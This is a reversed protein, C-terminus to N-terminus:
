NEDNNDFIKEYKHDTKFGDIKAEKGGFICSHEKTFFFFHGECIMLSSNESLCKLLQKELATMKSHADNFELTKDTDIEWQGKLDILIVYKQLWEAKLKLFSIASGSPAAAKLVLM